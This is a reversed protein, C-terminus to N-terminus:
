VQRIPVTLLVAGTADDVLRVDRVEKPAVSVPVRTQWRTPQGPPAKWTKVPHTWGGSDTLEIRCTVGGSVGWGKVVLVGGMGPGAALVHVDAGVTSAQAQATGEAVLVDGPQVGAYQEGRETSFWVGAPVGVLLVAAAAAGVLWRRRRSRRHALEGLTRRLLAEDPVEVPPLTEDRTADLLAPLVALRALEERCAPCQETHARLEDTMEDRLLAVALDERIGACSRSSPTPISPTTM